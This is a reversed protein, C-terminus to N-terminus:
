ESRVFRGPVLDALWFADNARYFVVGEAHASASDVELLRVTGRRAGVRKALEVNTTLHVYQRRMPHLGNTLISQVAAEHTGHWLVSPPVQAEHAIRDSLSHGYNARIDGDVMSFRRKDPEITEIVLTLDSESVDALRTRVAALVDVIPAYGEADLLIGFQEPKHRLILSLLKSIEILRRNAM